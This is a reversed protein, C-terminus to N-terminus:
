FIQHHFEDENLLNHYFTQYYNIVRHNLYYGIYALWGFKSKWLGQWRGLEDVQNINEM